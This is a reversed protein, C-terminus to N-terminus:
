ECPANVVRGALRGPRFGSTLRVPRRLEAQGEITVVLEAACPPITHESKPYVYGPTGDCPTGRRSSTRRLPVAGHPGCDLTATVTPSHPGIM